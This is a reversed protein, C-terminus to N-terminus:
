KKDIIIQDGESLGSLVEFYDNGELGTTIIVNEIKGNKFVQVIQNADNQLVANKPIILVNDKKNTEIIIDATMGSKIGLPQSILEITVEYYVVNDIITEAPDILLVKGLLVQKPFAVLNVKVDNGVKINVIDQEYIAVKIQFPDLSLLNVVTQSPSVVQGRKVNVETVKADIPSILYNDRLQSQLADVNGQAQEITSDEAKKLAIKYSSINAQSATLSTLANNINTKQTDIETKESDPIRGYYYPEDLTIRIIKLSDFTTNLSNIATFITSDIETFYGSIKASDIQPKLLILTEQVQTKGDRAAQDFGVFYDNQLYTIKNYANFISTYANNLINLASNYASQLNDKATVLGSGYENAAAKASQLQALLQSSELKALIDGKKVNDGVAVNIVDVRGISKFGLGIDKVARVSGTESVQQLVQGKQIKGLVLGDVPSKFVSKVIYYGAILLIIVIIILWTKSIKM